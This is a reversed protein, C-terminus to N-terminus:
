THPISGCVFDNPKHFIAITQKMNVKETDLLSDKFFSSHSNTQVQKSIYNKFLDQQQM